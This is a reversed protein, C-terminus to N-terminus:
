IEIMIEDSCEDEGAEGAFSRRTAGHQARTAPVARGMFGEELHIDMDEGADGACSWRTAGHKALPAPGACVATVGEDVDLYVDEVVCATTNVAEEEALAEQDVAAKRKRFKVACVVLLYLTIPVGVLILIVVVLVLTGAAAAKSLEAGLLVPVAKGDLCIATPYMACARENPVAPLNGCLGDPRVLSSNSDPACWVKRTQEGWTVDCPEMTQNPLLSCENFAGTVWDFIEEQSVAPKSVAGVTVKPPPSLGQAKAAAEVKSTMLTLFVDQKTELMAGLSAAFNEVGFAPPAWASYGPAQESSVENADKDQLRVFFNVVFAINLGVGGTQLHRREALRRLSVKEVDMIVVQQKTVNGMEAVAEVFSNLIVNVQEQSPDSGFKLQM